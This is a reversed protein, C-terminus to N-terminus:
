LDLAGEVRVGGYQFRGDNGTRVLTKTFYGFGEHNEFGVRFHGCVGQVRIAPFTKGPELAGLSDFKHVLVRGFLSHDITQQFDVKGVYIGENEAFVNGYTIEGCPNDTTPFPTKPGKWTVVALAPKSYLAPDIRNNVFPASLDLARPRCQASMVTTFDGALMQATPIFQVQNAPDTRITERQIGAFFFVKNRVIPGGIVGGFQHRKLTSNREAFYNRANFLDNRVFEFLSGHFENTGSKSAFTIAGGGAQGFEPKFGNTEVSFETIAEVSPTLFATEVVDANRNTNVLIGDLTAGFAGSQGGGLVVANGSGKAEPITSVLDFVSRMAGGVVLPVGLLRAAALGTLGALVAARRASLQVLAYGALISLAPYIPLLWRGFFRGQAGMYLYFCVPFAVLLLGLRRDHRLALVAGAVAALLPLWALRSRAPAFVGPALDPRIERAYASIPRPAM